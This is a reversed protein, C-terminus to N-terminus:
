FTYTVFLRADTATTDSAGNIGDRTGIGCKFAITLHDFKPVPQKVVLNLEQASRLDTKDEDHRTYNYLGYLVTGTDELKTVAKLYLTDAGGNFQQAYIMMSSGLAHNIGTTLEQFVLNDGSVGFYGGELALNDIKQEMSLGFVTADHGDADGAEEELRLYGLLATNEALTWRARTGLLTALDDAYAGFAAVELNSVCTNVAEIWTIGDSGANDLNEFKWLPDADIWNSLEWAHGALIRTKHIDASEIQVAEISRPKQRFDDARFVEGVTVKRGVTATTNTFGLAEMNYSLYAENLLNVRGNGVLADGPNGTAAYDMSDLVGVGIYSAGATWGEYKKSLYDLKLGLTTSQANAGNDYDRYMSLTQLRGSLTGVDKENFQEVISGASAFSAAMAAALILATKKM